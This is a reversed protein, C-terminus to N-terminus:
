ERGRGTLKALFGLIGRPMFLVVVMLLLGIGFYWYQPNVGSLQDRAVLFIIAGLIAGYLRGTGGLIRRGTGARELRQADRIVIAARDRREVM